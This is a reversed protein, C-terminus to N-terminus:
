YAAPYQAAQRALEETKREEEIQTLMKRASEATLTEVKAGLRREIEEVTIGNKEFFEIVTKLNFEKHLDEKSEKPEKPSVNRYAEDIGLEEDDYPMGGLEVSFCLRFGQGICVKKLMFRPQKQWFTNLKGDKTYQACESFYCEHQFPNKWDSRLIEIKAVLEREDKETWCRWGTLKGTREARKIYVEYGVIISCRRSPGEGFASVHIERKFPNLGWASAIGIFQKKEEQTLGKTATFSDLYNTLIGVSVEEMQKKIAINNMYDEM